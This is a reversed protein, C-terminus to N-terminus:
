VSQQKLKLCTATTGQASNSHFNCSVFALSEGYRPGRGLLNDLTQQVVGVTFPYQKTIHHIYKQALDEPHRVLLERLVATTHAEWAPKIKEVDNTPVRSLISASIKVICLAAKANQLLFEEQAARFRYSLQSPLDTLLYRLSSETRM